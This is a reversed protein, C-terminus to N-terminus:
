RMNIGFFISIDRHGHLEEEFGSFVFGLKQFLASAPHNKTQVKVMMTRLDQQRSWALAAKVLDKGMGHRRRDPAVTLNNIWALRRWNDVTAELYGRISEGEECVLFCDGREYHELVQERPAACAVRMTRPLRTLRFNTSVANLARTTELQWVYDTDFSPDLALCSELDRAQASRINM